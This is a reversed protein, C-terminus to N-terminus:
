EGKVSLEEKIIDRIYLILMETDIAYKLTHKVAWEFKNTVSIQYEDHLTNIDFNEIFLKIIDDDSIKGVLDKIIDELEAKTQSTFYTLPHGFDKM